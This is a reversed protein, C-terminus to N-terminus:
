KEIRYCVADHLSCLVEKWYHMGVKELVKISAKNEHMARGIITQLGLQHFGHDICARASETAYGKNWHKKHFRFGLDTENMEDTWKLGCWGLFEDTEKLRVVWRGYGFKEYDPYALIFQRAHEVSEFTADGTYKVVEPDSNLLYFDEAEHESMKHLYLRTTELVTTRPPMCCFYNVGPEFLQKYM